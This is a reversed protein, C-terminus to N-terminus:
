LQMVPTYQGASTPPQQSIGPHTPPGPPRLFRMAPPQQPFMAAHHPDVGQTQPVKVGALLALSSREPGRSVEYSVPINVCLLDAVAAVM